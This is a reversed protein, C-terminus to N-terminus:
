GPVTAYRRRAVGMAHEVLTVLVSKVSERRRADCLVVPVAPDLDLAVRVEDPQYRRAHDFCNVAVVFPTQRHEFYDV